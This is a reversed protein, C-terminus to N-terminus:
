YRDSHRDSFRAPSSTDRKKHPTPTHGLRSGGAYSSRESYIDDPHHYKEDVTVAPTTARYHIEPGTGGATATNGFSKTWYHTWHMDEPRFDRPNRSERCMVVCYIMSGILTLFGFILFVIGLIWVFLPRFFQIVIVFGLAILILGLNILLLLCCVGKINPCFPNPAAMAEMKLGASRGSRGSRGSRHSVVSPAMSHAGDRRSHRSAGGGSRYSRYSYQSQPHSRVSIESPARYAGNAYYDGGDRRGGAEVDRQGGPRKGRRREYEEDEEEADYEERADLREHRRNGTYGRARYAERGAVRENAIMYESITRDSPARQSGNDDYDSDSLHRARNTYGAQGGPSHVPAPYHDELPPDRPSLGKRRPPAVVM